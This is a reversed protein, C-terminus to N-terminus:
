FCCLFGQFSGVLGGFFFLFSCYGCDCVLDASEDKKIKANCFGSLRSMGSFM